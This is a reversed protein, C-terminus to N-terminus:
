AGKNENGFILNKLFEYGVEFLENTSLKEVKNLIMEAIYESIEKSSFDNDRSLTYIQVCIYNLCQENFNKELWNDVVKEISKKDEM